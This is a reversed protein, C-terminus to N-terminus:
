RESPEMTQSLDISTLPINLFVLINEIEDLIYEFDPRKSPDTSWAEVILEHFPSAIVEPLLEPRNDRLPNKLFLWPEKQTVIQWLIIGFSYVDLKQKQLDREPSDQALFITNAEPAAYVPSSICHTYLPRQSYKILQVDTIKISNVEEDSNLGILINEPKLDGHWFYIPGVDHEMDRQQNAQYHLYYMAKAINYALLMQERLSIELYTNLYVNLPLFNPLYDTIVNLTDFERLDKMYVGIMNIFYQSRIHKINILDILLQRLNSAYHSNINLEKSLADRQYNKVVVQQLKGRGCSKVPRGWSVIDVHIISLLRHIERINPLWDLWQEQNVSIFYSDGCTLSKVMFGYKLFKIKQKFQLVIDTEAQPYQWDISIFEGPKYVNVGSNIGMKNPKGVFRVYLRDDNGLVMVSFERWSGDNLQSFSPAKAILVTSEPPGNPMMNRKVEAWTKYPPPIKNMAM